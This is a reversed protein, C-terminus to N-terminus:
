DRAAYVFAECTYPLRALGHEGVLEGVEGLLAARPRQELAGVFSTSEVRDILGARSLEQVFDVELEGAPEFLVSRELPRRWEGSAQRPADGRHPELLRSIAAQLQDELDRRNWILGLRGGPGLVRHFESLAAETAFWHFAQAAVVADASGDTAPLQEATGPEARAEPVAAALLERMASVPEVAVVQAGRAVLAATLRGTGAGVDVVTGGSRLELAGWLWEVAADPYHPRGREYADAARGFGASAATHVV